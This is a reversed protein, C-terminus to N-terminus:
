AFIACAAELEAPTYKRAARAADVEARRALYASYVGDARPAVSYDNSFERRTAITTM